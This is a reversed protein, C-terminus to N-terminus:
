LSGYWRFDVELSVGQSESFFVGQHRKRVSKECGRNLVRFLASINKVGGGVGLVADRVVAFAPMAAVASASWVRSASRLANVGADM